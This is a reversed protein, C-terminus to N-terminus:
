KQIIIQSVHTQTQKCIQKNKTKRKANFTHLHTYSHLLPAFPRWGAVCRLRAAKPAGKKLGGTSLHSRLSSAGSPARAGSNCRAHSGILRDKSPPGGPGRALMIESRVCLTPPEGPFPPVWSIPPDSVQQGGPRSRLQEARPKRSKAARAQNARQSM